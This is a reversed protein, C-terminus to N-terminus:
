PTTSTAVNIIRNATAINGATDTATYIITYTGITSTDVTGSSNVSVTGDVDDVATAGADTYTDGVNISVPNDGDITIVPAVTDPTTSATTTATTDPTTSATTTATTDPTVPPL